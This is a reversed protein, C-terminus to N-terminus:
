PCLSVAGTVTGVDGGIGCGGALEAANCSPNGILCGDVPEGHRVVKRGSGVDGAGADPAIV